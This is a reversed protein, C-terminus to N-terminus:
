IEDEEEVWKVESCSECFHREGDESRTWGCRDLGSDRDLDARIHSEFGLSASYEIEIEDGCEDCEYM